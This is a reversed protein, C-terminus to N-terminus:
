AYAKEIDSKRIDGQSLGAIPPGLLQKAIRQQASATRRVYTTLVNPSFGSAPEQGETFHRLFADIDSSSVGQYRLHNEMVKRGVDPALEFGPILSATFESSGIPDVEDNDDVLMLLRQNESSAVATCAKGFPTSRGILKYMREATAQCHAKYLLINMAAYDCLPVPQHGRDQTTYKDHIAVWGDNDADICAPLEIHRTERLALLVSLRWACLRTYANHFKRVSKANANKSPRCSEAQAGLAADHLQVNQANPVLRSGVGQADPALEVAAGLGLEAYLSQELEHFETASVVAYHLKSRPIIGLDGSLLAAHLKNVGKLRLHLALTYRLRSWTPKLEDPSPFISGEPDPAREDPYLESLNKAHPYRRLRALLNKHVDLPLRIQIRHISPICGPLAKGAQNVAISLDLEIVGRAVDIYSLGEPRPSLGLELSPAVEASLGTRLVVLGVMGKLTDRNLEKAIAETALQFQSPPLLRHDLAGAIHSAKTNLASCLVQSRIRETATQPPVPTKGGYERVVERWYRRLTYLWNVSTDGEQVDEWLLHDLQAKSFPDFSNLQVLDKALSESVPKKLHFARLVACAALVLVAENTCDSFGLSAFAVWAPHKSKKGDLRSPSSGYTSEFTGVLSDRFGQADRMLAHIRPDPDKLRVMVLQLGAILTCVVELSCPAKDVAKLYKALREQFSNTSESATTILGATSSSTIDRFPSPRSHLETNMPKAGGSLAVRIHTIGAYLQRISSDRAVRGSPGQALMFSLRTDM